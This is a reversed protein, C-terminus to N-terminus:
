ESAPSGGMLRLRPGPSTRPRMPRLSPWRVPASTLAAWAACRCTALSSRLSTRWPAARASPMRSLGKKEGQTMIPGPAVCNVRVGFAGCDLAVDRTMQELAAKTASYPVFAPFCLSGTISSTLVVAGRRAARMGPLVAKLAHAAGKINVGLVSDWAESCVLHVEGYVFVASMVVLVDVADVGFARLAEAHAGAVVAEDSVDVCSFLASGPQSANLREVLAVGAEVAIDWVAVRAGRAHLVEVVGEGIGQAGGTVVAVRGAFPLPNM